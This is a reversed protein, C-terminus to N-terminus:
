TLGLTLWLKIDVVTAVLISLMLEEDVAAYEFCFCGSIAVTEDGDEALLMLL